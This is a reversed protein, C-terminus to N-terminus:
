GSLIEVLYFLQIRCSHYNGEGVTLADIHRNNAVPGAFWDEWDMEGLRPRSPVRSPGAADLDCEISSCLFEGPFHQLFFCFHFVFPYNLLIHVSQQQPVFDSEVVVDGFDDCICLPVVYNVFLSLLYLLLLAAFVDMLEILPRYETVQFDWRHFFIHCRFFSILKQQCDALHKDRSTQHLPDPLLKCLLYILTKTFPPTESHSDTNLSPRLPPNIPLKAFIFCYVLTVEKSDLAAGYYFCDESV